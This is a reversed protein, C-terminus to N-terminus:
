LGEMPILVSRCRPALSFALRFADVRDPAVKGQEVAQGIAAHGGAGWTYPGHDAAKSQLWRYATQVRGALRRDAEMGGPGTVTAEVPRPDTDLLVERM